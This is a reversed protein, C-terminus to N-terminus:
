FSENPNYSYLLHGTVANSVGFQAYLRGNVKKIRQLEMAITFSEEPGTLKEFKLDEIKAKHFKYMDREFDAHTVYKSVASDQAYALQGMLFRALENCANHYHVETVARFYKRKKKPISFIGVAVRERENFSAANLLPRKRGIAKRVDRQYFDKWVIHSASSSGAPAEAQPPALNEAKTKDEVEDVAPINSAM